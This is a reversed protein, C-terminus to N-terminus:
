GREEQADVDTLVWVAQERTYGEAMLEAIQNDIVSQFDYDYDRVRRSYSPKNVVCGQGCCKCRQETQQCFKKIEFETVGDSLTQRM